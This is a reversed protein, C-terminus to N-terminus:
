SSAVDISVQSSRNGEEDITTIIYTYSAGPLRKNDYYSTGNTINTLGDSRLIEYRLARNPVRDWHIEAATSSYVSSRLGSAPTSITSEFGFPALVLTVPLSRVGQEDITTVTYSDTKGPTRSDDYFSDGHTTNIVEDERMIEYSLNRNPVRIWFIEAATSSYIDGRLHLPQLSSQAFPGVIVTTTNSRLGESDIATVAYETQKGPTRSPDFYSTGDTLDVMGDDRMVEYTLAQNPTRDWFLEIATSSYIDARLGTVDPAAAQAAASVVLGVAIATGKLSHINM